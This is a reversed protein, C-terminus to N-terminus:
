KGKKDLKKRLISIAGSQVYDYGYDFLSESNYFYECMIKGYINYVKTVKNSNGGYSIVIPKNDYYITQLNVTDAVLCGEVLISGTEDFYKYSICSGQSYFLQARVIDTKSEKIICLGDAKWNIFSILIDLSQYAILTDGFCMTKENFSPLFVLPKVFSDSLYFVSHFDTNDHYASNDIKLFLCSDFKIDSRNYITWNTQGKIVDPLCFLILLLTSFKIPGM